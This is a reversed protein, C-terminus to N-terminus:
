PGHGHCRFSFLDPGTQWGFRAMAITLAAGALLINGILFGRFPIAM